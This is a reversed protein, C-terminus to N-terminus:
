RAQSWKVVKFNLTEEPTNVTIYYPGPAFKAPSIDFHNGSVNNMELVLKGTITFMKINVNYSTKNSAIRLFDSNNGFGLTNLITMQEAIRSNRLTDQPKCTGNLLNGEEFANCIVPAHVDKYLITDAHLVLWAAQPMTMNQAFSLNAQVELNDAIMRGAQKWIKM